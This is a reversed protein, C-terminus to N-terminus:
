DAHHKLLKEATAYGATLIFALLSVGLANETTEAIGDLWEPCTYCWTGPADYQATFHDIVTFWILSLALAFPLVVLATRLPIRPLRMGLALAARPGAHIAAYTFTAVVWALTLVMTDPVVNTFWLLFTNWM